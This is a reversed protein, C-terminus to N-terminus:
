KETSYRDKYQKWVAMTHSLIEAADGKLNYCQIGIPGTYGNDRLLKVFRYTDFSGEGLPQILREWGFQKTDGDDAGCINVAFLFPAYERIKREIGESGEVKLLHCLNMVAGYNKRDALKALDVSHAVTECYTSVHPYVCLKVGFSNAYEALDRLILVLIKDGLRSDNPFSKSHVHFYVISGKASSRIMQKIHDTSTIDLRADSEFNLEVYNVPMKIGQESLANNLEFFDNYGMGELGDFGISKLLGAKESAAKPANKMGDMTNQVYLVNDLKNQSFLQCTNLMMWIASIAVLRAKM